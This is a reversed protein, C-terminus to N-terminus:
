TIWHTFDLLVLNVLFHHLCIMSFKIKTSDHENEFETRITNDPIQSWRFWAYCYEIVRYSHQILWAFRRYYHYENWQCKMVGLVDRKFYEIKPVYWVVGSFTTESFNYNLSKNVFEWYYKLMHYTLDPATNAPNVMHEVM